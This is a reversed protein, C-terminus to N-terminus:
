YAGKGHLVAGITKFIIELDLLLSYNQVYYLDDETNLHMPKDSRGNVQWWGTLGQPVAFRQRQWPEYTDVLYPLEPRPGVLSMDGKLINFIQPLEDLSTQRLIHGLRTVRPDAVSKHILHGNEDLREVLHRMQEANPLMTRFKLMDFLRGNEGVRKQRFMIPGPGEVRIAIAIITMLVLALPMIFITVALDFSRKVMRQYDTLAPARLDLMPIGAFEDIVAKHLALHFYDPIVWVKVPLNHLEAVLRNVQEHARLPLAIIVDDIDYETVISRAKELSGLVNSVSQNKKPDDDLFGIVKLGLTQYAHIQDELQCGILGDGVILVRHQQTGQLINWRFALRHLFRWLLLSLYAGAAFSLFLFRSVERFSLYLMGALAVTAILSGLTLRGIENWVKLNRRGDYVSVLLLIFVWFIPFIAYLPLPVHFPRPIDAVLPLGSLSPRVYTALALSIAVLIADVCISFVAFNVSFRRLM